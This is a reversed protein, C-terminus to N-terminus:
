AIDIEDCSIQINIKRTDATTGAVDQYAVFGQGPHFVPWEDEDDGQQVADIPAPDSIGVATLCNTIPAVGFGIGVHVVTVGTTVLSYLCAPTADRVSDGLTPAVLTGSLAAASTFRRLLLRPATPTALVTSHQTTVFCRRLRMARTTASAPMHAILMVATTGNQAAALVTSPLLALEYISVIRAKRERIFFHEHVVDAGIVRTQTRVKPGTNGADTPLTVKAALPAAM